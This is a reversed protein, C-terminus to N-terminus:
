CGSSPSSFPPECRPRSSQDAAVELHGWRTIVAALGTCVVVVIVLRVLGDPGDVSVLAETPGAVADM